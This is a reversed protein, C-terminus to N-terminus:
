APAPVPVWELYEHLPAVSVGADPRALATVLAAATDLSTLCPIGQEVAARRIEHGDRLVSGNPLSGSSLTNIVLHVEGSRIVEVVHPHGQGLKAVEAAPAGARRLAQATGPTALLRYGHGLLAQLIPLAQRKDGDAISCLAARGAPWGPLSALFAKHLASPLDRALGMVEGTSKMEPGLIADVATLKAMSFVPGKVAVLPRVPALGGGYGLAELRHGLHILTALGVMPVGTAKSLFPVTRSARPNVELVYLRGDHLVYQINVLGRVGLALAIRETLAVVEAQEPALLSAPYVALSDGSHVGAREVHQLIGPVLVREGDCVADVELETGLLYRDVLLTGRAQAALADEVYRELDDATHVIEMARGGLVYSPRVVVPYGIRAAERLAQARDRATAGEPQAIGLERLLAACRQRDEAGDIAEPSSGLITAGAAALPGALNIATQGGFQAVVGQPREVSLVAEVSEQDLPEFYLRTSTDFDTSVTEPNSNVLVSPVGAERLALAAQVSCYDFEIGQGIRIPGSGLVVVAGGGQSEDEADYASYYYPTAAEFEAACTDVQKFVPRVDLADRLRKVAAEDCGACAAILADSLGAQKARRLLDGELPQSSLERELVIIAEMRRLFWPDIRTAAALTEVATGDRLAQLIAFLRQDNPAALLEPQARLRDASPWTQELSRVAKMLAAEFTRGIAMVEGTSKMQTGLWRDAHPFKDFPWRPIKVVCYDLAPEFAACTRGTVPNPIEDLRRGVAIKAAVRAIPYGTAKSALASSRSVRPNVEIVYYRSADPALAFQINCGGEIGLARIIKLSATRLMQYDRDSLTQSPAVVISDGTHVGMPDINEMNCVTICTGARDRMVEYEIEKWGAVSEEVLVQHIPSHALGRAVVAEFEMPTAALGGGTGGLTYAPRVVLPLGAEMAFARAEDPSHAIASRPVPEGLELLVQRFAARDEARRIAEMPSGLLRVGYARLVGAEDLEVALNLATQGGLTPLLADPRERAIIARVAPLTLPEIYVQDPVGPDTMITAPNSNVLITRIGEERLAKCAQTGAYDFEAAQGIVIPGSGIVLVSKPREAAREGRSLVVVPRRADACRELFEDFLHSSDQPGPAGEPHFQVSFAAQAEVALGEVSGDHLNRHSIACGSELSVSDADVQFEHNQTTITVRGSATERVPHNGGHHGFKLRSTTAGIAQGLIQHGLCIGFVPLRGLLRRCVAVPGPLTAPDGPGNSLVVGAPRRALIDDVSSGAPVVWVEAGRAHLARLINRKLGYDVVVVRVATRGTAGAAELQQPLGDTWRYPQKCTVEGVLDQESLPTVQGALRVLEQVEQAAQLEASGYRHSLTALVARRTGGSRLHRALARTDVGSLAPIGGQRLLTALSQQARGHSFDPSLERVILARVWVRESERDAANAGYNGILPYTMVVMQGAYSPDSLVEQYGTMCTNFVVEGVAAAAGGARWGPWASGDELVLVGPEPM